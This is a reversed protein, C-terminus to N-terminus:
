VSPHLCPTDWMTGLRAWKVCYLHQQQQRKTAGPAVAAAFVTKAEDSGLEAIEDALVDDAYACYVIKDMKDSPEEEEDEEEEGDEREEDSEMLDEDDSSEEKPYPTVSVSRRTIWHMM